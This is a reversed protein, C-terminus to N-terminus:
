FPEKLSFPVPASDARAFLPHRPHGEKTLGLCEVSAADALLEMM